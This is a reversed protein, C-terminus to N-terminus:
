ARRKAILKFLGASGWGTFLGALGAAIMIGVLGLNENPGCGQEFFCGGMVRDFALVAFLVATLLGVAVGVGVQVKNM